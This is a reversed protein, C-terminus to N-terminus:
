IVVIKLINTLSAVGYEVSLGFWTATIVAGFVEVFGAEPIM